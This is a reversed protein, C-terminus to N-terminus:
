EAQAESQPVVPEDQAPKDDKEAEAPTSDVKLKEVQETVNDVAVDEATESAAPM